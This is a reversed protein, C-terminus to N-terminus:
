KHKRWDLSSKNLLHEFDNELRKEEAKRAEEAQKRAEEKRQAEEAKMADAQSKLKNVIDPNLMDKLTAPKEGASPAPAANQWKKKAM